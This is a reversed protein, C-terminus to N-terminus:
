KHMHRVQRGGVRGGEWGGEGGGRARLEPQVLKKVRGRGRWEETAEVEGEVGGVGKPQLPRM